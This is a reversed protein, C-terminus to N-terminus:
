TLQQASSPQQEPESGNLCAMAKLLRQEGPTRGKGRRLHSRRAGHGPGACTYCLQDIGKQPSRDGPSARGAPGESGKPGQSCGGAAPTANLANIALLQHRGAIGPDGSSPLLGILLLPPMHQLHGLGSKRVLVQLTALTTSPVRSAASFPCGPPSQNETQKLAM